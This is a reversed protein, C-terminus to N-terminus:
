GTEEKKLHRFRALAAASLESFRAQTAARAEAARAWEPHNDALFNKFSVARYDGAACKLALLEVFSLGSVEIVGPMMELEDIDMAQFPAGSFAGWLGRARLREEILGYLWPNMPLDDLTVVLPFFTAAEPLDFLHRGDRRIWRVTDVVQRMGDVFVADVKRVLGDYDLGARVDAPFPSAKAEVVLVRDGFLCVADARAVKDGMATMLDADHVLRQVTQPYMGELVDTVYEGFREGLRTQYAAREEKSFVAPDLHVHYLGSTIRATLLHMSVCVADDGFSVLPHRALPTVHFPRLATLSYSARMEKQVVEVPAAVLDVRSRSEDESLHLTKSFYQSRSVIAAREHSNEKKIAGFHAHLAFLAFWYEEADLGTAQGIRERLAPDRGGLLLDHSRVFDQMGHRSQNFLGNALIYMIRRARGDSGDEGLNSFESPLSHLLDNILLLSLAFSNLPRPARKNYSPELTLFALKAATLLQLEHFVVSDSAGDTQHGARVRQYETTVDSGAGFLSALLALQTEYQEEHGAHYLVASIRGCLELVEGLSYEGLLATAEDLTAHYGSLERAGVILM